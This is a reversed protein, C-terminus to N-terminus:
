THIRQKDVWSKVVDFHSQLVDAVFNSEFSGVRTTITTERGSWSPPTLSSKKQSLFLFLSQTPMYIKMILCPQNNIM